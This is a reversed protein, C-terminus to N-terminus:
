ARDPLSFVPYSLNPLPYQNNLYVAGYGLTDVIAQKNTAYEM